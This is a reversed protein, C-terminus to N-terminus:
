YPYIEMSQHVPPLMQTTEVTTGQCVTSFESPIVDEHESILSVRLAVQIFNYSAKAINQM